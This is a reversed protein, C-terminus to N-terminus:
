MSGSSGPGPRAPSRARAGRRAARRREAPLGRQVEGLRQVVVARELAEADLQDAGVVLRDGAGLVALQEARRHRAGPQPHRVLAIAVVRRAPAAVREGLEAQRADHAGGEREAPAAAPDRAGLLLELPDDRAADLGRRDALHQEVLRHMPQPSNSSSTIRSLASLTTITQEISFTSGIPTCVPSETVTAGWCVSM